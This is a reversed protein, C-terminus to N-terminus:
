LKLSATIYLASPPIPPLRLCSHPFSVWPASPSLVPNHHLSFRSFSTLGPLLSTLERGSPQHSAQTHVQGCEHTQTHSAQTSVTLIPFVEAIFAFLFIPPLQVHIQNPCIKNHILRIWLIKTCHCFSSSVSATLVVSVLQLHFLNPPHAHPLSSLRSKGRPVFMRCSPVAQQVCLRADQNTAPFILPERTAAMERSLVNPRPSHLSQDRFTPPLLTRAAKEWLISSVRFVESHRSLLASCRNLVSFGLNCSWRSARIDLKRQM